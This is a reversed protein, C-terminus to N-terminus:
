RGVHMVVDPDKPVKDHTRGGRSGAYLVEYIERRIIYM